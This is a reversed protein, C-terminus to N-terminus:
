TPKESPKPRPPPEREEDEDSVSYEILRVALKELKKIIENLEGLDDANVVSRLDNLIGLIFVSTYVANSVLPRGFIKVQEAIWIQKEVEKRITEKLEDETYNFSSMM